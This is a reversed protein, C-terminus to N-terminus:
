QSPLMKLNLPNSTLSRYLRRRDQVTNGVNFGVKFILNYHTCSRIKSKSHVGEHSSWLRDKFGRDEFFYATVRYDSTVPVNIRAIELPQSTTSFPFFNSSFDGFIPFCQPLLPITQQTGKSERM